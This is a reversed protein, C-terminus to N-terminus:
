HIHFFTRARQLAGFYVVGGLCLISCRFGVGKFFGMMGAEGYIQSIIDKTKNLKMDQTMLRTKLVDLPCSVFGSILAAIAGSLSANAVSSLQLYNKERLYEFIPLQFASFVIDRAITSKYGIYFGSIGKSRAIQM